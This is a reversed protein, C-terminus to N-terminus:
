AISRNQQFYIKHISGSLFMSYLCFISVYVFVGGWKLNSFNISHLPKLNCLSCIVLFALILQIKRESIKFHSLCLLIFSYTCFHLFVIYTFWYGYKFPNRLADNIPTFTVINYLLFIIITPYLQCIIRNFLRNTFINSNYNKSHALFGSIFFFLPMRIKTLIINFELNINPLIINTDIHVMVVLIMLIGRLIDIYNDRKTSSM